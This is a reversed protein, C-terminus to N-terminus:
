WLQRRVPGTSSFQIGTQAPSINLSGKVYSCDPKAFSVIVVNIYGSWTALLLVCENTPVQQDALLMFRLYSSCQGHVGLQNNETVIHQSTPGIIMGFMM